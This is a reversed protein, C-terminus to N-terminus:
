RSWVSRVGLCRCDSSKKKRKLVFKIKSFLTFIELVIPCMRYFQWLFGGLVKLLVALLSPVSAETLSSSVERLDGREQYQLICYPVFAQPFSWQSPPNNCLGSYRSILLLCAPLALTLSPTPASSPICSLGSLFGAARCSGSWVRLNGILWSKFGAPVLLYM